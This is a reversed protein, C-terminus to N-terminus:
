FSVSLYFESVVPKGKFYAPKWKPMNSLVEIVAKSLDPHMENEIKINMIGGTKDILFHVMVNPNDFLKAAEPHVINEDVYKALNLTARRESCGKPFHSNRKLITFIEQKDEGLYSEAIIKHRWNYYERRLPLGEYTSYNYIKTKKGNKYFGEEQLYGEQNYEAFHGHRKGKKISTIFITDDSITSIFVRRNLSDVMNQKSYAAAVNKEVRNFDVDVYWIKQEQAYSSLTIIFLWLVFCLHRM